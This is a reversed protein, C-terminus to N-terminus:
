KILSESREIIAESSNYKQYIPLAISEKSKLLISQVNEWNGKVRFVVGEIGAMVNEVNEECSLQTNGVKISICVGNGQVLTTSKESIEKIQQSLYDQDLKKISIPIPMKKELYFKKGLVRPLCNVLVDDVIFTQFEKMLSRKEQFSKIKRKLKGLSIVKVSHNDKLASKIEKQRADKVILLVKTEISKISNKLKILHVKKSSPLNELTFNLFLFEETELLKDSSESQLHSLLAKVAKGIQKENIKEM